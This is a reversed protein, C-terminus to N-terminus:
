RKQFTLTVRAQSGVSKATSQDQVTWGYRQYAAVTRNVQAAKIAEVRVAGTPAQELKRNKSRNALVGVIVVLAITIVVVTLFM